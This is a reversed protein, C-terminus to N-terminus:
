ARHCAALQPMGLAELAALAETREATEGFLEAATLQTLLRERESQRAEALEHAKALRERSLAAGDRESAHAIRALIRYAHIQGVPDGQEARALSRMAYDRAEEHAGITALADALLAQNFSLFLGINRSELTHLAARLEALAEPARTSLFRAYGEFAQAMALVYEGRIRTAIGRAVRAAHAAADLDGRCIEIMADLAYLSGEVVHGTGRIAALAEDMDTRASAFDGRDGRVLARCALAYAYGAPAGHASRGSAGSGQDRKFALGREICDLAEDYECAAALSQGLNLWLQAVLKHDNAREARELSRRCQLVANRQDGLSYFMWGLWHAARAAASEDNLERAFTAARELTLLQSWDPSYMTVFAWKASVALWARRTDPTPPLRDYAALAESYQLAARDLSSSALAKDGAQTAYSAAAAHDGAGRYHYALVEPRVNGRRAKFNAGLISAINRHVDRRQAVRVSEYVVDRAIGHKFRWTARTEGPHVFDRQELKRLVDELPSQDLVQELLSVDFDTGIVSATRLLEAQPPPLRAVRAHIVGRITTPIGLQELAEESLEAASPPLSRCIEEVFLPNGGSKRHILEATSAARASPVLSGVVATTESASFPRLEILESGGPLAAVAEGPRMALLILAPSALGDLVGRLVHQSLEDAWQWDDLVLVVPSRACLASFLTTLTEVIATKALASKAERPSISQLSLLHLLLPVTRDRDLELALVRDEISRVADTITTSETLAFLQRLIQLFPQLPETDSYPESYGRFVRVIASARRARFEELIRTKGVGAPGVLALVATEGQLLRKTAADLCQLEDTRGVLQTLGISIRADFRTKLRSKSRICHPRVAVAKGKLHLPPLTEVGFFAEIGYLAADSALIQDRAAVACLRAATNVPDGILDYRGHLADGERALVLGSHIGSHLRVEFGAATGHSDPRLARVQEHLALAAEIARRPHEEDPDPLGFVALLGDGYVQTIVGHHETIVRTALAEFSARLASADEPDCVESLVTFDCLDTFLLSVFGRQERDEGRRLASSDVVSNVGVWM